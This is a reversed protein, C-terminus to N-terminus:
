ELIAQSPLHIVVDWEPEVHYTSIHKVLRIDVLLCSTEKSQMDM